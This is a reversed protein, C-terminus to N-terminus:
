HPQLLKGYVVFCQLSKTLMGFLYVTYCLVPSLLWAANRGM